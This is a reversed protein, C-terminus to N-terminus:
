LRQRVAELAKEEIVQKLRKGNLAILSGFDLENVLFEVIALQLDHGIELNSGTVELLTHEYGGPCGADTFKLKDHTGLILDNSQDVTLVPFANGNGMSFTISNNGTPSFNITATVGREELIEEALEFWDKDTASNTDWNWRDYAAVIIKQLHTTDFEVLATRLIQRANENAM